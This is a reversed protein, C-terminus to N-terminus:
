IDTNYKVLVLFWATMRSDVATGAGTVPLSVPTLVQLGTGETNGIFTARYSLEEPLGSFFSPHM